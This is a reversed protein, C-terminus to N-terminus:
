RESAIRNWTEQYQQSSIAGSAYLNALVTARYQIDTMGMQEVQSPVRYLRDGSTDRTGTAYVPPSANYPAVIPPAYYRDYVPSAYGGGFRNGRHHHQALASESTAAGFVLLILVAIAKSCHKMVNSRAAEM